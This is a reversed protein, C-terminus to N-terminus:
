DSLEHIGEILRFLSSIGTDQLVRVVSPKVGMLVVEGGAALAYKYVRILKGILFSDIQPVQSLDYVKCPLGQPELNEQLEPIGLLHDCILSLAGMPYVEWRGKRYMKFPNAVQASPNGEFEDASVIVEFLAGIQLSKLASAVEQSALVKMQGRQFCRNYVAVLANLM